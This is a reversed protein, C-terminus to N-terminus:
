GQEDAGDAVPVSLSHILENVRERIQEPMPTVPRDPFRSAIRMPGALELHGLDASVDPSAALRDVAAGVDPWWPEPLEWDLAERLRAVAEDHM